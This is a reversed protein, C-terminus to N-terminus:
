KQRINYQAPQGNASHSLGPESLSLWKGLAVCCCLSQRGWGRQVGAVAAKGLQHRPTARLRPPSPSIGRSLVLGSIQPKSRARVVHGLLM